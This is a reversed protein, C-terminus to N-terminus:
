SPTCGNVKGRVRFRLRPRLLEERGVGFYYNKICIPTAAPAADFTHLRIKNNARIIRFKQINAQHQQQQQQKSIICLLLLLRGETYNLNSPM